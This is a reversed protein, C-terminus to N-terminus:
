AGPAMRSGRGASRPGLQALRLGWQLVGPTLMRAGDIMVCVVDGSAGSVARNLAVGPNPSAAAPPVYEYRVNPGLASRCLSRPSGNDVLHVEYQGGAIGQQYDPSLSQLTNVVQAEMRYCVM